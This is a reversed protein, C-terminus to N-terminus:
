LLCLPLAYLEFEVNGPRPDDESFVTVVGIIIMIMISGSSSSSSSIM